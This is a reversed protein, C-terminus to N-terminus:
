ESDYLKKFSCLRCKKGLFGGFTFTEAGGYNQVIVSQTQITEIFPFMNYFHLGPKDM